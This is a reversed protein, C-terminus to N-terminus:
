IPRITYHTEASPDWGMATVWRWGKKQVRDPLPLELFLITIPLGSARNVFMPLNHALCYIFNANNLFVSNESSNRLLLKCYIVSTLLPLLFDRIRHKFNMCVLCKTWHLVSHHQSKLSRLRYEVTSRLKLPYHRHNLHSSRSHLQM